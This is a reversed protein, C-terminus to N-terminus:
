TEDSELVLIHKLGNQAVKSKKFGWEELHSLVLNPKIYTYVSFDNSQLFIKTQLRMLNQFKGLPWLCPQLCGFFQVLACVSNISALYTAEIMSADCGVIIPANKLLSLKVQSTHLTKKDSRAKRRDNLEFSFWVERQLSVRPFIYRM